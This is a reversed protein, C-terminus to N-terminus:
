SDKDIYANGRHTSHKRGKRGFNPYQIGGGTRRLNRSLWRQGRSSQQEAKGNVSQKLASFAVSKVEALYMSFASDPLDPIFDDQMLWSPEVIGMAQCKSTQLTSDMNIDYSDFILWEDDFTTYWQPQKDNQIVFPVGTGADEVLDYQVLDNNRNALKNLFADPKLYKIDEFRVRTEGDRVKNYKLFKMERLREDMRMHTPNGVDTSAELQILRELHPWNRTSMLEFYTTKAIQAVQQGEFTDDISNIMDGDMDNMVDQVIDLISLRM